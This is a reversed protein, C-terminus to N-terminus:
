DVFDRFGIIRGKLDPHRYVGSDLVAITVGKADPATKYMTECIIKDTQLGLQRRVRDMGIRMSVIREM